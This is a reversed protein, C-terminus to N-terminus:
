PVFVGELWASGSSSATIRHCRGKRGARVKGTMVAVGGMGRTTRDSTYLQM